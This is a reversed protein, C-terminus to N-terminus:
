SGVACTHFPFLSTLLLELYLWLCLHGKVYKEPLKLILNSNFLESSLVQTVKTIFSVQRGSCNDAHHHYGRWRTYGLPLLSVQGPSVGTQQSLGPFRVCSTLSASINRNLAGTLSTMTTFLEVTFFYVFSAPTPGYKFFVQWGNRRSRLEYFSAREPDEKVPSSSLAM